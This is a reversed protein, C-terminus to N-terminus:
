HSEYSDPPPQFYTEHAAIHLPEEIPPLLAIDQSRAASALACSCTVAVAIACTQAIRSMPLCRSSEAFLTASYRLGAVSTSYCDGSRPPRLEQQALLKSLRRP